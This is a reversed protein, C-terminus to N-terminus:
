KGLESGELYQIPQHRNTWLLFHWLSVQRSDKVGLTFPGWRFWFEEAWLSPSKQYHPSNLLFAPPCSSLLSPLPSPSFFFPPFLPLFSPPLFSLFSSLLFSPPRSEQVKSQREALPIVKSFEIKRQDRNRLQARFNSAEPVTFERTHQKIASGGCHGTCHWFRALQSPLYTDRSPNRCGRHYSDTRCQDWM